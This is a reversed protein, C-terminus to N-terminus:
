SMGRLARDALEIMCACGVGALFVDFLFRPVHRM